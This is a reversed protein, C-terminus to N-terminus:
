RSRWCGSSKEDSDSNAIAPGVPAPLDLMRSVISYASYPSTGRMPLCPMPSNMECPRSTM